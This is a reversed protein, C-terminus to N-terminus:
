LIRFTLQFNMMPWWQALDSYKKFDKISSEKETSSEKLEEGNQYISLDGQYMIGLEFKFGIRNKTVAKGLGLGFYPKILKGLKGEANLAADEGVTLTYKDLIIEPPDQDDALEAHEGTNPNILYGNSKLKNTGLYVGGTLHFIGRHMPHWDVLIEGDVFDLKGDMKYDPTYGYSAEIADGETDELTITNNKSTYSFFNIGVRLNFNKHIPTAAEIGYGLTSAGVAINLRSFPTTETNQAYVAFSAFIFICALITVKM